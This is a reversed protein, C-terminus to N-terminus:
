RSKLVVSQHLTDIEDKAMSNADDLGIIDHLTKFVRTYIGSGFTHLGEPPMCGNIGHVVDSMPVFNSHFTNDVHHCSLEKM